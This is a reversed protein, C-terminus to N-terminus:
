QLFCGFQGWCTRGLIRQELACRYIGGRDGPPWPDDLRGPSSKVLMDQLYLQPHSSSAQDTNRPGQSCPEPPAWQSAQTRTRGAGPDVAWGGRQGWSGWFPLQPRRAEACARRSWVLGAGAPTEVDWFSPRAPGSPLTPDHQAHINIQLLLANTVAPLLSTDSSNIVKMWRQRMVLRKANRRPGQWARPSGEHSQCSLIRRYHSLGPNSEQTPFIGQLLSHSGVGTNKSPSDWPCLLRSPKLRHPRLSNSLVSGSELYPGWAKSAESEHCCPYKPM